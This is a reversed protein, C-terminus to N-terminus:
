PPPTERFCFDSILSGSPEHIAQWHADQNLLGVRLGDSPQISEAQQGALHAQIFVM